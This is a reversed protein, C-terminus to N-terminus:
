SKMNAPEPSKKAGLEEAILSVKADPPLDKDELILRCKVRAPPKEFELGHAFILLIFEAADDDETIGHKEGKAIGAQILAHVKEPGMEKFKEPFTRAVRKAVREEYKRRMHADLVDMQEKRIILM